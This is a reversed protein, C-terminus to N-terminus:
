PPKQRLAWCNLRNNELTLELLRTGGQKLEGIERRLHRNEQGVDILYLYDAWISHVGQAVSRIFQHGGGALSLLGRSLPNDRSGAPLFLLGLSLILLGILLRSGSQRIIKKPM